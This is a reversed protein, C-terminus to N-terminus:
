RCDFRDEHKKKFRGYLQMAQQEVYRWDGKIRDCIDQVPEDPRLISEALAATLGGRDFIIYRQYAARAAVPLRQLWSAAAYPLFETSLGARHVESPTWGRSPAVALGKSLATKIREKVAECNPNCCSYNMSVVVINKGGM